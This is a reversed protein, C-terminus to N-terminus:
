SGRSPKKSSPSTNDMNLANKDNEIDTSTHFLKFKDDAKKPQITPATLLFNNVQLLQEHLKKNDLHKHFGHKSIETIAHKLETADLKTYDNDLHMHAQGIIAQLGLLQKALPKDKKRYHDIAKTLASFVNDLINELDARADESYLKEHIAQNEGISAIKALTDALQDVANHWAKQAYDPADLPTLSINRIRSGQNFLKDTLKGGPTLSDLWENIETLSEHSSNDSALFVDAYTQGFNEYKTEYEVSLQDYENAAKTKSNLIVLLGNNFNVDFIADRIIKRSSTIFIEAKNIVDNKPEYPSTPLNNAAKSVEDLMAEIKNSTNEIEAQTFKEKNIYEEISCHFKKQIQGNLHDSSALTITSNLKELENLMNLKANSYLQSSYRELM